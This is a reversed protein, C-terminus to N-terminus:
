TKNCNCNTCSVLWQEKPIHTLKHRECVVSSYFKKSCQECQYLRGRQKIDHMRMHLELSRRHGMVRHCIHCKFLDPDQHRRLHDVLVGRKWFKRNCCVAYGRQNHDKRAHVLLESFGDLPENCVPCQVKYHDRIYDNFEKSKTMNHVGETKVKRVVKSKTVCRRKKTKTKRARKQIPVDVMEDADSECVSQQLYDSMNHEEQDELVDAISLDAEPFEIKIENLNIQELVAKFESSNIGTADEPPLQKRPRGRRRKVAAAVSEGLVNEQKVVDKIAEVKQVEASIEKEVNVEADVGLVRHNALIEKHAQEVSLYFNHFAFLQDWCASCV